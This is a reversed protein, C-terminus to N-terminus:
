EAPTLVNKGVDSKEFGPEVFAEISKANITIRSTDSPVLGCLKCLTGWQEWTWDEPELILPEPCALKHYGDCLPPDISPRHVELITYKSRYCQIFEEDLELDCPGMYEPYRRCLDWKLTKIVNYDRMIPDNVMEKLSELDARMTDGNVNLRSRMFVPLNDLVSNMMGRPRDFEFLLVPITSVSNSM